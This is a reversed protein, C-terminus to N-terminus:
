YRLIEVRFQGLDFVINIMAHRQALPINDEASTYRFIDICISYFGLITQLSLLTINQVSVNGVAMAPASPYGDFISSHALTFRAGKEEAWPTLPISFDERSASM